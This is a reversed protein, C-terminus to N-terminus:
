LIYWEYCDHLVGGFHYSGIGTLYKHGRLVSILYVSPQPVMPLIPSYYVAGTTAHGVEAKPYGLEKPTVGYADDSLIQAKPIFVVAVVHSLEKVGRHAIGVAYVALFPGYRVLIHVILIDVGRPYENGELHPEVVLELYHLLRTLRDVVEGITPKSQLVRFLGLENVEDLIPSFLYDFGREARNGKPGILFEYYLFKSLPSDKEFLYHLCGILYKIDEVSNVVEKGSPVPLLYVFLDVLHTLNLADCVVGEHRDYNRVM